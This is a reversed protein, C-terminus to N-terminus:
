LQEIKSRISPAFQQFGRASYKKILMQQAAQKGKPFMKQMLTKVFGRRHLNDLQEQHRLIFFLVNEDTRFQMALRATLNKLRSISRDIKILTESLPNKKLFAKSQSMMNLCDLAELSFLWAKNAEHSMDSQDKGQGIKYQTLYACYNKLKALIGDDDWSFLRMYDQASGSLKTIHEKLCQMLSLRGANNSSSSFKELIKKAEKAHHSALILETWIFQMLIHQQQHYAKVTKNLNQISM